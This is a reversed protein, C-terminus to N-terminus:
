IQSLFFLNENLFEINVKLHGDLDLELDPKFFFDGFSNKMVGVVKIQTMKGSLAYKQLYYGTFLM